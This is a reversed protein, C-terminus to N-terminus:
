PGIKLKDCADALEKWNLWVWAQRQNVDKLDTHLLDSSALGLAGTFDSHAQQNAALFSDIDNLDIPEVQYDPLTLGFESIAQRIQNLCDWNNFSWRAWDAETHPVNLLAALM